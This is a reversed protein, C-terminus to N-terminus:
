GPPSARRVRNGPRPSAGTVSGGFVAPQPRGVARGLRLLYDSRAMEVVGLSKLHPTAWQVDLLEGGGARLLEVLGVLAV